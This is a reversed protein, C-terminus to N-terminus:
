NRAMPNANGTSFDFIPYHVSGRLAAWSWSPAIYGSSQSMVVQQRTASWCLQRFIDKRWIGALYEDKIIENTARALGAVACLKDKEKTLAKSTYETVLKLWSHYINVLDVSEPSNHLYNGLGGM